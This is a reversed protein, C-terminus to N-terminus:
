SSRSSRSSCAAVVAVDRTFRRLLRYGIWGSVAATTAGLIMGPADWEFLDNVFVAGLVFAFLFWVGGRGEIGDGAPDHARGPSVSPM